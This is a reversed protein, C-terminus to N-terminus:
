LEPFRGALRTANGLGPFRHWQVNQDEIRSLPQEAYLHPGSRPVDEDVSLSTLRQILKVEPERALRRRAKPVKRELAEPDMLGRPPTHLRCGFLAMQRM